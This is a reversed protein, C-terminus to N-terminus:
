DIRKSSIMCIASLLILYSSLLSCSSIHRSFFFPHFLIHLLVLIHLFLREAEFSAVLLLDHGDAICSKYEFQFM